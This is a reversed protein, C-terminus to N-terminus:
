RWRGLFLDHDPLLQKQFGIISVSFGSKPLPQPQVRCCGRHLSIVTLLTALLAPSLAPLKDLQGSAAFSTISRRPSCISNVQDIRKTENYVLLM